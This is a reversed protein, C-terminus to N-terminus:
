LQYIWFYEELSLPLLLSTPLFSPTISTPPILSPTTLCFCVCCCFSIIVFSWLMCIQSFFLLSMWWAWVFLVGSSYVCLCMCLCVFLCVFFNDERGSLTTYSGWSDSVCLKCMCAPMCMVSYHYFCIFHVHLLANLRSENLQNLWM